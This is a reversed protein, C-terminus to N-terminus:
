VPLRRAINAVENVKDRKDDLLNLTEHANDPGDDLIGRTKPHVELADWEASTVITELNQIREVLATQRAESQEVAKLLKKVEGELKSTSTGLQNQKEKFKLWETFAGAIIGFIPILLPILIWLYPGFM